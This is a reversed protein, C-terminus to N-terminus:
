YQLDKGRNFSERKEYDDRCDADCFVGSCDEGCNYCAGVAPLTPLRRKLCLERDLEERATADDDITM